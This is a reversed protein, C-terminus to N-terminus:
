ECHSQSRTASSAEIGLSQLQAWSVSLTDGSFDSVGDQNLDWEYSAISGDTDSSQTADLSLSDGEDLSIVRQHHRHSSSETRYRNRIPSCVARCIATEKVQGFWSLSTSDLSAVSPLYQDGGTTQNVIFENDIRNGNDDFHAAVIDSGTAGMERQWTATFSGDGSMAVSPNSISGTAITFTDQKVSADAYYVKCTPENCLFRIRGPSWSTARRM